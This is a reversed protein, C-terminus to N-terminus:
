WMGACMLGTRGVSYRLRETCITRTHEKITTTERLLSLLLVSYFGIIFRYSKRWVAVFM